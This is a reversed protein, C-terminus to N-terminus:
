NKSTMKNSIVSQILYFIIIFPFAKMGIMFIMLASFAILIWKNQNNKWGFTKFKLAFLPIESVLLLSFIVTIILLVWYESLATNLYPMDTLFPLFVIVLGCAPTPLGIFSETQRTDLNFIALRLASFMVILFAVSSAIQAWSVPFWDVVWDTSWASLSNQMMKYMVMSPLLGSTICDALSDLEKGIDSKVHLMRAAFGDFFDFVIGSLFFVAAHQYYGNYAFITAIVGCLLNCLTITNPIYKKISM